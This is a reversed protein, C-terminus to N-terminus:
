LPPPYIEFSNWQNRTRVQVVGDLTRGHLMTAFLLCNDHFGYKGIGTGKRILKSVDQVTRYWKGRLNLFLNQINGFVYTETGFKLIFFPGWFCKWFIVLPKAALSCFDWLQCRITYQRQLISFFLTRTTALHCGLGLTACRVWEGQVGDAGVRLSPMWKLVSMAESQLQCCGQSRSCLDSYM